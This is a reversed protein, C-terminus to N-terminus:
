LHKRIPLYEFLPSTISFYQLLLFRILFTSDRHTRLCWERLVWPLISACGWANKVEVRSPDRVAKGRNFAEKVWPIPPQNPYSVMRATGPIYGQDDLDCDTVIGAKSRFTICLHLDWLQIMASWLTLRDHPYPRPACSFQSGTRYM